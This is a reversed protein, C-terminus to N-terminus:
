PSPVQTESNPRHAETRGAHTAKSSTLQTHRILALRARRTRWCHSPQPPARGVGCRGRPRGPSSRLLALSPDSLTRWTKSARRFGPSAQQQTQSTGSPSPPTECPSIPGLGSPLSKRFRRPRQTDNKSRTAERHCSRRRREQPGHAEEVHGTHTKKWRHHSIAAAPWIGKKPRHM